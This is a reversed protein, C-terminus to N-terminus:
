CVRRIRVTLVPPFLEKTLSEIERESTVVAHGYPYGPIVVNESLVARPSSSAFLCWGSEAPLDGYSGLVGLNFNPTIPQLGPGKQVHIFANLTSHSQHTVWLELAWHVDTGLLHDSDVMKCLHNCIHRFLPDLQPM